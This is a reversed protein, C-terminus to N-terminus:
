KLAELGPLKRGALYYVLAGGSLSIYGIKAKNIGYKRLATTSHGGSIVSFAKSAAIAKLLAKTGLSFKPNEAFGATGKFFIIKAKKIDKIYEKITEKGIDLINHKTPLQNIDIDKRKGNVDIAVDIPTKIHKINKVVEGM